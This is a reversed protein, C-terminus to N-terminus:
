YFFENWLVSIFREYTGFFTRLHCLGVFMSVMESCIQLEYFHFIKVVFIVNHVNRRKKNISCCGLRM